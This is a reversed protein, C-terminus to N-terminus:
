ESTGLSWRGIPVYVSGDSTQESRVLVWERVRWAIPPTIRKGLEPLTQCSANRMLTIHPKYPRQELSFAAASLGNQLATVLDMLERPVTSLEAHVINKRKWCCIKEVVLDFARKRSAEIEDAVRSLTQLQSTDVEGVFVLTLHINEAKTKRGGCLSDLRLRKVLEGLQKQAEDDPWVAFFVRVTKQKIDKNEEIAPM